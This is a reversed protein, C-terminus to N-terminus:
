PFVQFCCLLARPPGPCPTLWHFQKPRGAGSVSIRLVPTQYQPRGRAGHSSGLHALLFNDMRVLSLPTQSSLTGGMDQKIIGKELTSPFRPRLPRKPRLPCWSKERSIRNPSLDSSCDKGVSAPGRAKCGSERHSLGGRVPGWVDGATKGWSWRVLCKEVLVLPSPQSILTLRIPRLARSRLGRGLEVTVPGQVRIAMCWHAPAM